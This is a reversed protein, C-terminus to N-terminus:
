RPSFVAAGITRTRYAHRSSRLAWPTLLLALLVCGAAIAAALSLPLEMVHLYAQLRLQVQQSGFLVAILVAYCLKGDGLWVALFTALSAPAMEFTYSTLFTLAAPTGLAVGAVAASAAGLAVLPLLMTAIIAGALAILSIPLTRLLRLQRLAPILQFVMVVGCSMLSWTGAFVVVGGHGPMPSGLWILLLAGLGSMAGILLCIRMARSFIFFPMGGAGAESLPQNPISKLELPTLQFRQRGMTPLEPRGRYFQVGRGIDLRDADVWGVLTMFGGVGLLLACKFPSKAAGQALLMSGFLMLFGLISILFNSGMQWRNGLWGRTVGFIMPFANGLWVLSFLSGLALQTTPLSKHPHFQCFTGAGLFLLAALGIAPLPVTAVWWARGVQRGTLPLGAVPRLAGRKFDFSLLNAGAWLSGLLVWFEFPDQPRNAILSGVWLEFLGALALVWWWRRFYDLMLRTM